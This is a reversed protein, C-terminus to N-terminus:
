FISSFKFIRDAILFFKAIENQLWVLSLYSCPYGAAIYSAVYALYSLGLLNINAVYNYSNKSSNATMTYSYSALKWPVSLIM